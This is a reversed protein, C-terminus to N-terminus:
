VSLGAHLRVEGAVLGTENVAGHDVDISPRRPTAKM